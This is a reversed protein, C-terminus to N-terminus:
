GGREAGNEPVIRVAAVMRQVKAVATERELDDQGATQEVAEAVIRRDAEADEMGELALVSKALAAGGLTKCMMTVEAPEERAWRAAERSLVELVRLDMTVLYHNAAKTTAHHRDGRRTVQGAFRSGFKRLWIRPHWLRPSGAAEWLRALDVTRGAHV